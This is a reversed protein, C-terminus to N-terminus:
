KNYWPDKKMDTIESIVGDHITIPYAEYFENYKKDFRDRFIGEHCDAQWKTLVEGDFYMIHYGYETEVIGTDGIKRNPDFLWNEFNEVMQGKYVNNYFVATDDTYEQGLAEFSDRTKEGSLYKAHINEAMDLAADATDYQDYSFLIHGVNKTPSEDRYPSRVIFAIQLENDDTFIKGIEGYRRSYNADYREFVWEAIPYSDIYDMDITKYEYSSDLNENSRLYSDLERVFENESTASCIKDFKAEFMAKPCNQSDYSETYVIIDSYTFLDINENYYKEIDDITISNTIEDKIATEYKNSITVLEYFTRVDNMSVDDGFFASLYSTETFGNLNAEDKFAAISNNIENIDEEDLTIGAVKAAEAYVLNSELSSTASEKFFDLWTGDGYTQSALSKTTDIGLYHIM